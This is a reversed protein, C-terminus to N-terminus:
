LASVLGAPMKSTNTELPQFGLEEIPLGLEVLRNEYVRITDNYAKTALALSYKLKKIFKTKTALVTRIHELMDEIIKRGFAGDNDSVSDAERLITEIELERKTFKDNLKEIHENLNDNRSETKTRFQAVSNVFKSKIDKIENTLQEKRQELEITKKVTDECKNRLQSIKYSMNDINIQQNYYKKLKNTIENYDEEAEKLKKDLEEIEKKLSIVENTLNQNSATLAKLNENYQKILNINDKIQNINELKWANTRDEFAKILTNIHLNKREELEHIEVKLRLELDNELQIMKEKYNIIIKNLEGDLKEMTMNYLNELDAQLKEIQKRNTESAEKIKSKLENKQDIFQRERKLRIDEENKTAEIQNNKLTDNIFIDHDYELHRFKNVFANIEEQHRKEMNEMLIEEKEIEQELKKNEDKTIDYYSNILEREQQIFNRQNKKDRLIETQSLIYQQLQDITMTTFQDTQTSM